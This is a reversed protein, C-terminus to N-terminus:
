DSVRIVCPPRFITYFALDTHVPPPRGLDPHCSKAFKRWSLHCNLKPLKKIVFAAMIKQSSKGRNLNHM